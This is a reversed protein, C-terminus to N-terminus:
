NESKKIAKIDWLTITGDINGSALIKGDPSFALDIPAVHGGKLITILKESRADWLEVTNGVAIALVIGNSIFALPGVDEIDDGWDTLKAYKCRPLTWLGASTMPDGSALMKGDSSFGLCSISGAEQALTSLNKGTTVDWLKITGRCDGSALIKGDASVAVAGVAETHGKLTMVKKASDGGWLYIVDKDFAIALMKGNARYRVSYTAFDEYAAFEGSTLRKGPLIAILDRSARITATNKRAAVDWLRITRDDSESALTKGDPCFAVSRVKGDHGKLVVVNKGTAVDWLRINKDEGASALTSSDPCFAVSYVHGGRGELTTRLKFEQAWLSSTGLMIGCALFMLRNM